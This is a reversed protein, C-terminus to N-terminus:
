SKIVQISGNPYLQLRTTYALNGGSMRSPKSGSFIEPAEIQISKEPTFNPSIGAVHGPSVL